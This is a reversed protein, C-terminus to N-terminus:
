PQKLRETSIRIYEPNSDIGVYNRGLRKCVVGTTSTGCFPDLVTDGKETSALVIRELLWLPKQTPHRGFTREAAPATPGTWVDKMQKGSNLERMLAYNFLHRGKEREAWVITETSHTFNRRALNPPPNPKQWTVANLIRFGEEELAVGVTFINHFTGSVWITGHPKLIRRCLGIWKRNFALKEQPTRPIDWRGKNVCVAKGGSCSIGGGSLFYPPDAFVMDTSEPKIRGLAEFTDALFLASTRDAYCPKMNM